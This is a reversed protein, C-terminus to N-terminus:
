LAALAVAQLHCRELAEDCQLAFGCDRGQDLQQLCLRRGKGRRGGDLLVGLELLPSTSSSNRLKNSDRQVVGGICTTEFGKVARCWNSTENTVAPCRVAQRVEQTYLGVIRLCRLISAGHLGNYLQLAAVAHPLQQM